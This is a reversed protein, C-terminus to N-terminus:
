FVGAEEWFTHQKSINRRLSGGEGQVWADAEGKTRKGMQKLTQLCVKYTETSFLNSYPFSEAAEKRLQWCLRTSESSLGLCSKHYHQGSHCM